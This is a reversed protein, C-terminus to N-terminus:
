IYAYKALNFVGIAIFKAYKCYTLYGTNINEIAWAYDCKIRAYYVYILNTNEIVWANKCKIQAHYFCILYM